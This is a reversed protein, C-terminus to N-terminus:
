VPPAWPLVDPEFAPRFTFAGRTKGPALLEWWEPWITVRKTGGRKWSRTYDDISESEEDVVGPNRLRELVAECVVYGLTDQDLDDLDGLRARILIQADKIWKSVQLTEGEALARGLSAEIDSIQTEAM